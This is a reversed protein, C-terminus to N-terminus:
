MHYVLNLNFSHGEFNVGEIGFGDDFLRVWEVQLELPQGKNVAMGLGFQFETESESYGDIAGKVRGGGLLGYINFNESVPLTVRGLVSLVSKVEVSYGLVEYDDLNGYGRFEVGFNRHWQYGVILGLMGNDFSGSGVGSVDIDTDVYAYGIGLYPHEQFPEDKYDASFVSPTFLLSPLLMIKLYQNM